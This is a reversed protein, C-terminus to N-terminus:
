RIERLAIVTDALQGDVEYRDVDLAEPFQYYSRVGQLQRYTPSVVSPDVIRIGPVAAADERLQGPTAETAATYSRFDTKGLGYAQVTADINKQIFPRELVAQSPRVRLSQILAPYAGGVLLAVVVLGVLGIVPLRWTKTWITSIFFAACLVAAIALVGRTPLVANVDTYTPGTILTHRATTLNYRELWYAIARVGVLAALLVALHIRAAPTTRQGPTQLQVGGYVYHTLLAGVVAVGLTLTAFSVLVNLFPLTFVYFGVDKGFQADDVGFPQRNLWLLVTEWQALAAAGAFGGIVVPVAIFVIRRVPELAARYRDLNAQEPNSPAYIPRHKHALWLSSWVLAATVM